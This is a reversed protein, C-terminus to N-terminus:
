PAMSSQFTSTEASQGLDARVVALGDPELLHLRVGRRDPRTLVHGLLHVEVHDDVVEIGALRRHQSPAVLVIVLWACGEPHEEVRGTV